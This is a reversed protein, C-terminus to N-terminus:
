KMKQPEIEFKLISCEGEIEEIAIILNQKGKRVKLIRVIEYEEKEEEELNLTQLFVDSKKNEQFSVIGLRVQSIKDKFNLAKKPIKIQIPLNYYKGSKTSKGFKIKINLPNKLNRELYYASSLKQEFNTEESLNKYSKYYNLKFEPNKLKVEIKHVKKDDSSTTQFGLIYYNNLGIGISSLSKTADNQNLIAKGGTNDSLIKLSDQKSRSALHVDSIDLGMSEDVAGYDAGFTTSITLGRIDLSYVTFNGNIAIYSIDQFIPSLDYNLSENLSAQMPFRKELQYFFEIGPITPYGETLLLVIKRGELPSYTQLFAKLGEMTSEIEWKKEEAFSRLQMLASTYNSRLVTEELRRSELEWRLSFSGSTSYQSLFKIAEYTDTSLPFLEKLSPSLKYISIEDGEKLATNIFNIISNLNRKFYSPIIRYDDILIFLRKKSIPEKLKIGREELFQEFEKNAIISDKVEYLHTIQQKQNDVFLEFDGKKLNLIYNGEKDTVQVPVEILRVVIKEEFQAFSSLSFFILFYKLFKM